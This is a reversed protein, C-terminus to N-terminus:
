CCCGGGGGSVSVVDAAELRFGEDFGEDFVEDDDDVVDHVTLDFLAHKSNMLSRRKQFCAKLACAFFVYAM